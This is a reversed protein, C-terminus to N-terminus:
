GTTTPEEPTPVCDRALDAATDLLLQSRAARGGESLHIGDSMLLQDPTSARVVADWNSLSTWNAAVYADITQNYHPAYHDWRYEPGYPAGPRVPTHVNVWAKCSVTDAAQLIGEIGPALDGQVIEDSIQLRLTEALTRGDSARGAGRKGNLTLDDSL